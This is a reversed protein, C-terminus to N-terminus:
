HNQDLYALVRAEIEDMSKQDTHIYLDAHAKAHRLRNIQERHDALSYNQARRRLSEEFSVDLYILLDPNTLQRWMDPVYSHEQAIQRALHGHMALRDILTTKGSACPGVIGILTPNNM